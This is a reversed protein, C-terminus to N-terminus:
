ISFDCLSVRSNGLSMTYLSMDCLVVSALLIPLTLRSWLVHGLVQLGRHHRM